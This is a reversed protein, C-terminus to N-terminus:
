PTPCGELQGKFINFSDVKNLEFLFFSFYAFVCFTFPSLSLYHVSFIKWQFLMPVRKGQTMNSM